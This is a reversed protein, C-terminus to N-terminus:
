FLYAISVNFGHNRYTAESEPAINAIGLSYQAKIQITNNIEIGPGFNLGFDLAKFDKDDGSFKVSEGTSSDKGGIGYALYPGAFLLLKAQESLEIKYMANVPLELYDLRETEHIGEIDAKTGKTSYLLGPQIVFNTAVPIEAVVGVHFGVLSSMSMNIGSYSITMNSVNLGAQPGFKVQANISTAAACCLVVALISLKRM